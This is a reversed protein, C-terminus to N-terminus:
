IVNFAQCPSLDWQVNGVMASVRHLISMDLFFCGACVAAAGGAGVGLAGLGRSVM